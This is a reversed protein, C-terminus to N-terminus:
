TKQSKYIQIVPRGEEGWLLLSWTVIYAIGEFVIVMKYRRLPDLM